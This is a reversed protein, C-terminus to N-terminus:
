VAGNRQALGHDKMLRDIVNIRKNTEQVAPAPDHGYFGAYTKIVLAAAYLASQAAAGIEMLNPSLHLAHSGSESTLADVLAWSSSHTAASGIAYWSPIKPLAIAMAESVNFKVPVRVTDLTFASIATGTRNMQPAIGAIQTLDLFQRHQDNLAALREPTAVPDGARELAAFGRRQDQMACHWAVASRVIREQVGIGPDMHWHVRVAAECANRSLSTHAYLSVGRDDGSLLRSISVLCDYVFAVQLRAQQLGMKHVESRKLVAATSRRLMKSEVVAPSGPQPASAFATL